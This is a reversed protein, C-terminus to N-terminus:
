EDGSSNEITQITNKIIDFAQRNDEAAPQYKAFKVFDSLRLVQTLQNYQSNEKQVAKLQMALEDTTKQMSSINKRKALYSRFIDTLKTYYEKTSLETRRLLDLQKMAEQYPNEATAAATAPKKKRTLLYIVLFVIVTGAAAIYYWYNEKKEEVTVEIIDKIDNYPKSTDFPTFGVDIMISDTRISGTEDLPYSPIVWRGSDFSTLLFQQRLKTGSTTNSTDTKGKDLFEFHEITDISFFRIPQSEPVDAELTFRIREGILISTRDVSAKM